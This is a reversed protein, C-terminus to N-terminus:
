ALAILLVTPYLTASIAKTGYPALKPKPHPLGTAM